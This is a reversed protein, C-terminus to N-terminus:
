RWVGSNIPRYLFICFHRCERGMLLPAMKSVRRSPPTSPAEDDDDDDHSM